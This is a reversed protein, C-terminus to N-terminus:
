NTRIKFVAPFLSSYNRIVYIIPLSETPQASHYDAKPLTIIRRQRLSLKGEAFHLFIKAKAFIWIIYFLRTQM